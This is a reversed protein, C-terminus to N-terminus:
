LHHLYSIARIVGMLACSLMSIGGLVFGLIICALMFRERFTLRTDGRSERTRRAADIWLLLIAALLGIM